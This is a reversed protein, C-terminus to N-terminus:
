APSELSPPSTRNRSMIDRFRLLISTLDCTADLVLLIDVIPSRANQAAASRTQFSRGCATVEVGLGAEGDKSTPRLSVKERPTVTVLQILTYLPRAKIDSRIIIM